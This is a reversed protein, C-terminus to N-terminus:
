RVDFDHGVAKFIEDLKTSIIGTELLSKKAANLSNALAKEKDVIFNGEVQYAGNLVRVVTYSETLFDGVEVDVKTGYMASFNDVQDKSFGLRLLEEGVEGKVHANAQQAVYNQAQTLASRTCLNPTGCNVVTETRTKNGDPDLKYHDLLAVELTRPGNVQWGGQKYDAVKKEYQKTREEEEKLEAKRKDYASKAELKELERTQRKASGCSLTVFMMAVVAVSSIIRIMKM